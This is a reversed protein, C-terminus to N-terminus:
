CIHRQVGCDFTNKKDALVCGTSEYYELSPGCIGKIGISKVLSQFENDCAILIEPLVKM